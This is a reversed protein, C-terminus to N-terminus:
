VRIILPETKGDALILRKAALAGRQKVIKQVKGGAAFQKLTWLYHGTGGKYAIEGGWEYDKLGRVILPAITKGAWEPNLVIRKDGQKGNDREKVKEQKWEGCGNGVVGLFTTSNTFVSDTDTYLANNLKCAPFLRARANDTIWAGFPYNSRQPRFMSKFSIFRQGRIPFFRITDGVAIRDSIIVSEHEGKLVMRGYASNLFLKAVEKIAGTNERKLNYMRQFLPKLAVLWSLDIKYRKVIRLKLKEVYPEIYQNFNEEYFWTKFVGNAFILGKNYQTCAFPAYQDKVDVWAECLTAYSPCELISRPYSSNIDWKPAMGCDGFQYAETKGGRYVWQFRADMPMKGAVLECARLGTGAITGCTIPNVGTLKEFENALGIISTRGHVCDSYNRESLRSLGVKDFGYAKLIDRLPVPFISYSNLLTHQLLSSKHVRGKHSRQINVKAGDCLLCLIEYNTHHLLTLKVPWAKLWRLLKRTNSFRFYGASIAVGIFRTRPREGDRLLTTEYDLVGVNDWDIM